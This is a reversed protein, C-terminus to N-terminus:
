NVREVTIRVYEGVGVGLAKLERTIIVGMSYGGISKVQVMSEMREPGSRDVEVADEMACPAPGVAVATRLIEADTPTRDGFSESLFIQWRDDGLRYQVSDGDPHTEGGVYEGGLITRVDALTMRDQM